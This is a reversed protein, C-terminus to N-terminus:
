VVKFIWRLSMIKKKDQVEIVQNFSMIKKM